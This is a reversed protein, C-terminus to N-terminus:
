WPLYIYIDIVLYYVIVSFVRSTLVSAIGM